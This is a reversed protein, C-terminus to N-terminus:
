QAAGTLGVTADEIRVRGSLVAVTVKEGDRRVIFRTGLVTVTRPGAHVVFPQDPRHAINFYAEGKGLWAERGNARSATRVITATNM